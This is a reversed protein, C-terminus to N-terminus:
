DKKLKSAGSTKEKIDPTGRYFVSSAGSANVELYDSVSVRVMSAGSAQVYAKTADAKFANVTSAGSVNANLIELANSISLTSAGNVDATLKGVEERLRLKSAGSLKAEFENLGSFDELVADSAGSFEVYNVIPMEVIIDMRYRKIGGLRNVYDVKLQNGRVRIDLDDIDRGDGIATVKFTSGKKVTYFISSGGDIETFNSVAFEKTEEDRPSVEDERLLTCSSVFGLLCISLLFPSLKKM